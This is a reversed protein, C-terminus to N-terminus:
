TNNGDLRCSRANTLPLMIASDMPAINEATGIPPLLSVRPGVCHPPVFAERDPSAQMDVLAMGRWHSPTCAPYMRVHVLNYAEGPAAGTFRVVSLIVGAVPVVGGFYYRM